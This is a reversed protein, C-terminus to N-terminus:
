RLTSNGSITDLHIANDLILVYDVGTQSGNLTIIDGECAQGDPVITFATPDPYLTASDSMFSVCNTSADIAVASYIGPLWANGLAIVSGTGPVPAGLDFTGNWRLQYNVGVQSGTLSIVQGPCLIGAPIVNFIQPAVNIYTSGNMIAECGTIPNIAKITYTGNMVQPGFDLFGVVGTGTLSDITFGNYQLYYVLGAESGNIRIITGPCQSGTPNITYLTPLPNVVIVASDDMMQSAGNTSNIGRVEYLGAITFPGWTLPLNTGAVLVGQPFGNYILQYDVGIESGTLGVALGPQGACITGGGIVRFNVPLPLITINVSGNMDATCGTLLDTAVVTYTGAQTQFGFNIPNGSGIIPTGVAINNCFLQYSIGADGYSLGVERGIGGFPYSGGGTVLYANPPAIITISASGNMVNICGTLNNTALVTYTFAATRNGFSIPNGTGTVPPGDPTGGRLLQYDVNVESGSLGVPVGPYSFCYSGGGMVSYVLPLPNVVVTVSAIATNFADNATVTYTTTVDPSVMPNQQTSTWVPSGPPTCTWSFSYTGSGGSVTAILQTQTTDACIQSATASAVVNIASGSLSVAMLDTGTCGNADTVSLSFTTNSYLNTTLPAATNPGVALFPLPSWSYNMLGFGGSVSGNLTTSTGFPITQDVGADVIPLSNIAVAVSSGMDLSCGTAVRTAVVTYSGPLTQNGFSLSGGNGLVPTGIPNGNNFLQYTVGAQSGALGVNVGVGGICYNGGGTLAYQIPLPNVTVAVSSTVSNFGDDVVVTYVTNVIPSVSATSSSSTYGVPVSTWSYTYTGSGGTANANIVSNQGLCINAPTATPVSALATGTIFVTMNDNSTCGAADTVNLSFSRTANLNITHPALTSAGSAIYSNPTWTYSLAGTGGSTTGTITTSTGFPITLDPGANVQPLARVTVALNVSTGTCFTPAPGIPTLVYTVIIDSATLNTLAESFTTTFGSAAPNSIGAVVARSWSFTTGLIDSTITYTHPQGSCM